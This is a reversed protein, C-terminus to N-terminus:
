TQIIKNRENLFYARHLNGIVDFATIRKVICIVYLLSFFFMIIIFLIKLHIIYCVNYIKYISKFKYIVFYLHHYRNEIKNFYNHKYNRITFLVHLLLDLTKMEQRTLITKRNM